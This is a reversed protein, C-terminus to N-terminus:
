NSRVFFIVAAKEDIRAADFYASVSGTVMSFKTSVTTGAYLFQM